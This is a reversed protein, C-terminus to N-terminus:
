STQQVMIPTLPNNYKKHYSYPKQESFGQTFRVLNYCKVFKCSRLRLASLWQLGGEQLGSGPLPLPHPKMFVEILLSIRNQTHIICADIM